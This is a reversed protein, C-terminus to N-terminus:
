ASLLRFSQRFPLGRKSNIMVPSGDPNVPKKLHVEINQLAGTGKDFRCTQPVKTSTRTLM